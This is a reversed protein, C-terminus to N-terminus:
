RASRLSRSRSSGPQATLLDAALLVFGALLYLTALAEFGDEVRLPAWETLDLGAAVLGAALGCAFLVTATGSALLLDRFRVLYVVAAAAYAAIILDGGRLGGPLSIESGITEHVTLQEDVGLLLAGLAAIVLFAVVRSPRGFRRALLAGFATVGGVAMLGWTVLVDLMPHTRREVQVEAGFLRLRIDTDRTSVPTGDLFARQEISGLVATLLGSLLGVALAAPAARRATRLLEDRTESM